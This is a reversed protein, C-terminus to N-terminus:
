RGGPTRPGRRRGATALERPQEHALRGVVEVGLRREVRHDGGVAPQARDREAQPLDRESMRSIPMPGRAPSASSASGSVCGPEDIMGPLTFGTM